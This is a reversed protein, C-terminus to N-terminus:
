LDMHVLSPSVRARSAPDLSLAIEDEADVIEVEMQLSVLKETLSFAPLASAITAIPTPLFM